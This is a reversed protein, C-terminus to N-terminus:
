QAVTIQDYRTQLTSPHATFSAIRDNVAWVRFVGVLPTVVRAEDILIHMGDAAAQRSENLDATGYCRDMAEDFGDFGLLAPAFARQYNSPSENRGYFLLHPLFCPTSMNQSGTELFLDGQAGDLRAVYSARDPTTTIAVDIGAKSLQAQIVEPTLGNSMADPFGSVLELRLPQRDKERVGDGDSDIWGADELVQQARALDYDYGNVTDAYEGLVAAPVFTQSAAALGGFASTLLAERDIAYGIAERVAVDQGITYGENGSINMSLAQYAGVDSSVLRVGPLGVLMAASERPMDMVMDAQGAQLALVRVTADAYFKFEIQDIAPAEGWYDAFREVNIHSDKVYEVFQFPGTGIPNMPDFGAKTVGYSPHSLYSPLAYNPKTTVIQVTYDDLATVGGSDINFWLPGGQTLFDFSAAVDHATLETGDHFKVGHRLYFKWTTPDVNEWSEALLPALNFEDDMALLGEVVNANLPYRGINIKWPKEADVTYGDSTAAVRLVVPSPLATATPTAAPAQTAKIEVTPTPEPTTSQCAPLLLLIVLALLLLSNRRNM